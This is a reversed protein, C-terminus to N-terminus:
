PRVETMRSSSGLIPGDDVEAIHALPPGEDRGVDLGAAREAYEVDAHRRVQILATALMPLFRKPIQLLPSVKRKRLTSRGAM